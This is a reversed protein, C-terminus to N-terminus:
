WFWVLFSHVSDCCPIESTAMVVATMVEDGNCHNESHGPYRNSVLHTVTPFMAYNGSYCWSAIYQTGNRYKQRQWWWSPLWWRMDMATTKTTAQIAIAVIHIATHQSKPVYSAPRMNHARSLSPTSCTAFSLLLSPMITAQNPLASWPESAM